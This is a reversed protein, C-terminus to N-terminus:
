GQADLVQSQFGGKLHSKAKQSCPSMYGGHLWRPPTQQGHNPAPVTARSGVPHPSRPLLDGPICVAKSIIQM